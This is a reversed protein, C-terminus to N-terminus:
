MHAISEKEVGRQPSRQAGRHQSWGAATSLARQPNGVFASGSNATPVSACVECGRSGPVDGNCVLDHAGWCCLAAAVPTPSESM